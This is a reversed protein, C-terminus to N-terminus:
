CFGPPVPAHPPVISMVKFLKGMAEVGVLRAIAAEIDAAHDPNGRALQQGRMEIGLDRLFGAQPLPGHARAGSRRIVHALASFDVHASVDAEGPAALADDYAHSRVAQMTDGFGRQEYGYDIILGAGGNAAISRGIDEALSAAAPSIEYVAGLAADGRDPNLRIAEPSLAFALADSQSTVMRECWGLETMVFQRIPLADFFENAIVFLPRDTEIDDWRRVWRISVPAGALRERQVSELKASAEVLVVELGNLFDPTRRLARLMDAALTGRGPGLDVLLTAATSGQDRWCAACWLGILEGFAQSIEPATVFAGAAGISERTAYFGMERDHLALMMFAGVSIPGDMEIMRAIRRALANM